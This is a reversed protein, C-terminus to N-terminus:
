TLESPVNRHLELGLIENISHWRAPLEGLMSPPTVYKQSNAPGRVAQPPNRAQLRRLSRPAVSGEATRHHM